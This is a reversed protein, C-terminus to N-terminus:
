VTVLELEAVVRPLEVGVLKKELWSAIAAPDDPFDLIGMGPEDSSGAGRMGETQDDRQLVVQVGPGEFDRIAEYHMMITARSNPRYSM